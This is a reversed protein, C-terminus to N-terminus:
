SVLKRLRDWDPPAGDGDVMRLAARIADELEAIRERLRGDPDGYGREWEERSIKLAM